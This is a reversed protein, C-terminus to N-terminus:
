RSRTTSSRSRSCRRSSWRPWAADQLARLTDIRQGLPSASPVIPNRLTMGLYTTSLDPSM